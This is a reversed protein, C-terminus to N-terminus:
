LVLINIYNGHRGTVRQCTMKYFISHLRFVIIVKKVPQAHEDTDQQVSSLNPDTNSPLQQSNGKSEETM